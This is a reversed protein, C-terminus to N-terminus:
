SRLQKIDKSVVKLKRVRDLQDHWYSSGAATAFSGVLINVWAPQEGLKTFWKFEGAM